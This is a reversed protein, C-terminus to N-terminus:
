TYLFLKIIIRTQERRSIIIGRYLILHVTSCIMIYKIKFLVIARIWENLMFISLVGSTRQATIEM